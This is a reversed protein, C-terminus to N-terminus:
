CGRRRRRLSRRRRGRTTRLLAAMPVRARVAAGTSGEALSAEALGESAAPDFSVRKEDTAAVRELPSDSKSDTADPDAPPSTPYGAQAAAELDAGDGGGGSVRKEPLAAAAAAPSPSPAEEKEDEEESDMNLNMLLIAIFPQIIISERDYLTPYLIPHRLSCSALTRTTIGHQETPTGCSRM